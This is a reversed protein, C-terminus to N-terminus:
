AAARVKLAKHKLAETAEAETAGEAQAGCRCKALITRKATVGTYVDHNM